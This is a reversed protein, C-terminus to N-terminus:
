KVEGYLKKRIQKLEDLFLGAYKKKDEITRSYTWNGFSYSYCGTHTEDCLPCNCIESSKGKHSSHYECLFFYCDMGGYKEWKPWQIKHEGTEACWTWLEITLDLAIRKTLRM